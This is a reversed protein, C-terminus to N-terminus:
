CAGALTGTGCMATGFFRVAANGCGSMAKEWKQLLDVDKVPLVGV